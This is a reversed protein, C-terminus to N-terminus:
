CHGRENGHREQEGLQRPDEQGRRPLLQVWLEEGLHERRSRCDRGLVSAPKRSAPFQYNDFSPRFSFISHFSLLKEENKGTRGCLEALEDQLKLSSTKKLNLLFLSLFDSLHFLSNHCVVNSVYFISKVM